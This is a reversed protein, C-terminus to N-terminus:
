GQSSHPLPRGLVVAEVRARDVRPLPGLRVRPRAGDRDELGRAVHELIRIGGRRVEVQLLVPVGVRPDHIRGRRDELLADRAELAGRAADRERAAERRLRRAEERHESRGFVFTRYPSVIPLGPPLTSSMSATAFIACSCPAGSTISEVKAVGYRQRGISHPASMTVCEAVFNMPPWPVLM